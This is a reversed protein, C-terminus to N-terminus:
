YTPTVATKRKKVTFPSAIYRTTKEFIHSAFARLNEIKETIEVSEVVLDWILTSLLRSDPQVKTSVSLDIIAELKNIIESQKLSVSVHSLGYNNLSRTLVVSAEM